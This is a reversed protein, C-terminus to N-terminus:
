AVTCWVSVLKASRAAGIGLSGTRDTERIFRIFSIIVVASFVILSFGAALIRGRVPGIAVYSSRFSGSFTTFASFMGRFLTFCTKFTSLNSIQM